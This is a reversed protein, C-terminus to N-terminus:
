PCGFTSTCFSHFFLLSLNSPNFVPHIAALTIGTSKVMDSSSQTGGAEIETNCDAKHNKAYLLYISKRWLFQDLKTLVVCSSHFTNRVGTDTSVDIVSSYITNGKVGLLASFLIINIKYWLKPPFVAPPSQGWLLFTKKKLLM